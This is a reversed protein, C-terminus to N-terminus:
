YIKIFLNTLITIKHEYSVNSMFEVLDKDLFPTRIELSNSMSAMDSKVLINNPLYSLLDILFMKVEIKSFQELDQFINNFSDPSNIHDFFNNKLNKLYVKTLMKLIIRM